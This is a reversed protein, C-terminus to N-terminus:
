QKILTFDDVNGSGSSISVNCTGNSVAIGTISVQTWSSGASLSTSKDTGGSGKAALTGSTGKAWVALTYTGNPLGTIAQNLSGSLQWSWNGSHASSANSGGDATWGAPTSTTVRDAEFSPNMIFNNGPGIAWTGAVPDISWESMSQMVPKTGNFTIPMWQNYGIGNGAFDAWRDGGFVVLDQAGKVTVFLGTQTVHSFDADTNGIVGEAEYPGTINSASIYYSHSANWGHLDSSCVYYRGNAKFMTNGERGSGNYIRTAPQAELFDAPRLPIIYINSRGSLNSCVIYAKGDDDTFISQDGCNNNSVNTITAQTHDWTFAGNPTDSTAFFQTTDPTGLYQGILVYKKSTPNYAAGVRGIWTSSDMTAKAKVSAMDLANGEFKWHALDTSSYITVAVFSTDSNSKTPSAYYSAAGGYRVGYWYYTSDVSLVGGGQSYIPNGATDKWFVDNKILASTGMTGGGAGGGGAGVSGSAGGVTGGTGTRGGSGTQGGQTTARGGAGLGGTGGVTGGSGTQGGPMTARGGAGLGGTGGVTGGRGTQGGLGTGGTSAIGGTGTRGGSGDSEMGSTGGTRAGGSGSGVGGVGVPGTTGGEGVTAATTGGASSQGASGGHGGGSGGGGCAAFVLLPACIALVVFRNMLMRWLSAPWLGLQGYRTLMIGRGLKTRGLSATDRPRPESPHPNFRERKM